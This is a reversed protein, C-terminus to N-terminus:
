LFFSVQSVRVERQCHWKFKWLLKGPFTQFSYSNIFFVYIQKKKSSHLLNSCLKAASFLLHTDELATGSIRLNLLPQYQHNQTQTEWSTATLSEALSLRSVQSSGPGAELCERLATPLFNWNRPGHADGCPQGPVITSVSHSVLVSM